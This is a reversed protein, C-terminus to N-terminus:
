LRPMPASAVSALEAQLMPHPTTRWPFARRRYALRAVRGLASESSAASEAVALVAHAITGSYGFSSVGGARAEATAWAPAGCRQVVLACADHHGGLAGDVHPNLARLQANPAAERTLMRNSLSLLGTM